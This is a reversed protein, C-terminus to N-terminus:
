DLSYIRVHKIEFKQPFIANDIEGGLTGGLALNIVLHFRQDFPWYTWGKGPNTFSGYLQEDIYTKICDHGWEISYNHFAKSCDDVLINATKSSSHVTHNSCFINGQDSGVHEVIDIEGSNPWKGYIEDTPLMWIAPWTGKGSPLKARVEVRCYKWDGKNKTHVRASTYDNIHKLAEIIMVGDEVRINEKRNTYYQKEANYPNLGIEYSWKKPDLSGNYNFEDNWVLKSM